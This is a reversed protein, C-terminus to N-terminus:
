EYQAVAKAILERRQEQVKSPYRPQGLAEIPDTVGYIIRYRVLAIATDLWDKLEDGAPWDGLTLTFWLPAVQRQRLITDFRGVIVQHLADHAAIHADIQPQFSKRLSAETDLEAQAREAQQRLYRGSERHQDVAAKRDDFSAWASDAPVDASTALTRAGSIQAAELDKGERLWAEYRSMTAEHGARAGDSLLQARIANGRRLAEAWRKIEDDVADLDGAVAEPQIVAARQLWATQRQMRRQLQAVERRLSTVARSERALDSSLEDVSDHLVTQDSEVSDVRRGLTRELEDVKSELADLDRAEAYSPEGSSSSYPYSM